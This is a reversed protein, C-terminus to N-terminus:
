QHQKQLEDVKKLAERSDNILNQYAELGIFGKNKSYFDYKEENLWILYELTKKDHPGVENNNLRQQIERLKASM